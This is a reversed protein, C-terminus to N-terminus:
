RRRTLDPGADHLWWRLLAKVEASPAIGTGVVRMPTSTWAVTAYETASPLGEADYNAFDCNVRGAPHSEPADYPALGACEIGAVSARHDDKPDTVDDRGDFYANMAAVSSFQIYESNESGRTPQCEEVDAVIWLRYPSVSGLAARTLSDRVVCARRSVSPIRSELKAGARDLAATTALPPIGSHDPHTLPGADSRWFAHLATADRGWIQAVVHLPEYTWTIVPTGPALDDENGATALFCYVRGGNQDDSGVTYTTSSPCQDSSSSTADLAATDILRELARDAADASRYQVYVIQDVGKATCNLQTVQTPDSAPADGITCTQRFSTPVSAVLTHAAVTREDVGAAAPAAALRPTAGLLAGAVCACSLILMTARRRTSM